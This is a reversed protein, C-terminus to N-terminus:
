VRSCGQPRRAVLDRDAAGGAAAGDPAAAVAVGAPAVRRRVILDSSDMRGAQADPVPEVAGAAAGGRVGIRRGGGGGHYHRLQFDSRGFQRPSPSENGVTHLRGSVVTTGPGPALDCCPPWIAVITAIETM